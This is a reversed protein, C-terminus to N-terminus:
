LLACQCLPPQGVACRAAGAVGYATYGPGRGSPGRGSGGPHRARPVDHRRRAVGAVGYQAPARRRLLPPRGCILTVLEQDRSLAVEEEGQGVAPRGAARARAARQHWQPGGHLARTGDAAHGLQLARWGRKCKSNSATKSMYGVPCGGRRLLLELPWRRRSGRVVGGSAEEEGVLCGFRTM